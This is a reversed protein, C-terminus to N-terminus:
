NKIFQDIIWQNQQLFQVFLEGEEEKLNKLYRLLKIKDERKMNGIKSKMINIMLNQNSKEPNMPMGGRNM